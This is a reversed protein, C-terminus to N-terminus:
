PIPAAAPRFRCVITISRSPFSHRLQALASSPLFLALLLLVIRM